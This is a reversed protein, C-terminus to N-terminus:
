DLRRGARARQDGGVEGGLQAAVEAGDGTRDGRAGGGTRVLQEGFAGADDAGALVDEVRQEADPDARRGAGARREVLVLRGGEGRDRRAGHGGVGDGRGGSEGGGLGGRREGPELQEAVERGGGDAGEGARGEGSREDSSRCPGDFSSRERRRRPEVSP